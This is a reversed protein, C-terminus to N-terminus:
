KTVNKQSDLRFLYDIYLYNDFLYSIKVLDNKVLEAQVLKNDAWVWALLRDFKDHTESRPEMELTISYASRLINNTFNKADDYKEEGIEPADVALFRCIIEENNENRFVVTDGDIGYMYRVKYKITNQNPEIDSKDLHLHLLNLGYMFAIFLLFMGLNRLKYKTRKTMRM